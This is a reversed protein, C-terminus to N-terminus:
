SEEQRSIWTKMDNLCIIKLEEPQLIKIHPLWAKLTNRIEDLSGVKFSVVIAGDAREEKIEQHPYVKRRRFYGACSQDVIVIVEINRESSFWINGSEKLMRDVQAPVCRFHNGLPKFDKIKDLAAISSFVSM